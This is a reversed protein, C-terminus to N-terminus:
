RRPPTQRWHGAKAAPNSSMRMCCLANNMLYPKGNDRRFRERGIHGSEWRSEEDGRGNSMSRTRLCLVAYEATGAHFQTICFTCYNGHWEVIYLLVKGYFHGNNDVSSM